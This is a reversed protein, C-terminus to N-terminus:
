TSYSVFNLTTANKLVLTTSVGSFGSNKDVIAFILEDTTVITVYPTERNPAFLCFTIIIFGQGLASAVKSLIYILLM